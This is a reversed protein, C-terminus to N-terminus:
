DFIATRVKFFDPLLMPLVVAEELLRKAQHLDAIDDWRINPNKQVIDRETSAYYTLLVPSAALYCLLTGLMDVLERDYGFPDFKKEEEEQEEKGESDGEKEGKEKNDDKSELSKVGRASKTTPESKGKVNSGKGVDKKGASASGRAGRLTGSKSGSDSGAKKVNRM